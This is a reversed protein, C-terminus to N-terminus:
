RFVTHLLLCSHNAATLMQGILVSTLSVCWVCYGRSKLAGSPWVTCLCLDAKEEWKWNVAYLHFSECFQVFAIFSLFFRCIIKIHKIFCLSMYTQFLPPIAGCMIWYCRRRVSADLSKFWDVNWLSIGEGNEPNQFSAVVLKGPILIVVVRLWV